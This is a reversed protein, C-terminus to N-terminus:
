ADKRISSYRSCHEWVARYDAPSSTFSLEEGRCAAHWCSIVTRCFQPTYVGSESLDKGGTVRIRRKSKSLTKTYNKKPKRQTELGRQIEDSNQMAECTEFAACPFNPKLKFCCVATEKTSSFVHQMCVLFWHKNIMLNRIPTIGMLMKTQLRAWAREMKKSWKGELPKLYQPVVTSMLVSPKPLRHGFNKM